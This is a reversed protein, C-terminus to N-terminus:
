RLPVAVSPREACVLLGLADRVLVGNRNTCDQQMGYVHSLGMALAVIVLGGLIAYIIAKM